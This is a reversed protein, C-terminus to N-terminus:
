LDFIVDAPDPHEEISTESECFTSADVGSGGDCSDSNPNPDEYAGPPVDGGEPPFPLDGNLFDDGEGGTLTDDGFNGFVLDNGRDGNVADNGPGGIALDDGNGGNVTDNGSLGVVM